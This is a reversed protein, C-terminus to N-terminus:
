LALSSFSALSSALAAASIAPVVLVEAEVYVGGSWKPVNGMGVGIMGGMVAGGDKGTVMGVLVGMDALRGGNGGDDIGGGMGKGDNRDVMVVMPRMGVVVNGDYVVVVVGRGGGEVVCGGMRAGAGIGVGMVGM